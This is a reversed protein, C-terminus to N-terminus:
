VLEIFADDPYCYMWDEDPQFSQIIEHQTRHFHKTAHRNKSQDCCGVHGCIRCLRLHFWEDGMELCEECGDGSPQVERIQGLHGCASSAQLNLTAGSELHIEYTQM